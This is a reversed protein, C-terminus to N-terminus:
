LQILALLQNILCKIYNTSSFLLNHNMCLDLKYCFLLSNLLSSLPLCGFPCIKSIRGCPLKSSRYKQLGQDFQLVSHLLEADQIIHLQLIRLLNM